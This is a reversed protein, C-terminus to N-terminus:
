LDAEKEEEKDEPQDQIEQTEDPQAEKEVIATEEVEPEGVKDKLDRNEKQLQKIKKRQGFRTSIGVLMGIFVGLLISAYVIGYTPIPMSNLNYYYYLKVPDSNKIGFTVLAVLVILLLLAKFYSGM